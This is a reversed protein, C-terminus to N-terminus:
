GNVIRMSCTLEEVISRYFLDSCDLVPERYFFIVVCVGAYKVGYDIVEGKVGATTPTVGLDPAIVSHDGCNNQLKAVFIVFSAWGCLVAILEYKISEVSIIFM